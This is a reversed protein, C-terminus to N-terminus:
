KEAILRTVQQAIRSDGHFEAHLRAVIHECNEGDVFDYEIKLKDVLLARAEPDNLADAVAKRLAGVIMDDTGPPLVFGIHVAFAGVISRNAAFEVSKLMEPRIEQITEIMTPIDPILRNRRFSGDPNLEGRQVIADYVGEHRIAERSAVYATLGGTDLNVEGRTLALITDTQGRFGSVVKYQAGIMNFFLKGAITATASAGTSAFVLPMAPMLLDGPTSLKLDKRALLVHTNSIAGLWRFKAPDFRINDGGILGPTTIGVLYGITLGDPKTANFIYNAGVIGGAGARNEVIVTPRGPTHKAIFPAFQRALVDVPGGAAFNVAIRITKGEFSTAAAAPTTLYAALMAIAIRALGPKIMM